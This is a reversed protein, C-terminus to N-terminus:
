KSELKIITEAREVIIDLADQVSLSSDESQIIKVTQALALSLEGTQNATQVDEIAKYAGNLRGSSADTINQTTIFPSLSTGLTILMNMESPSFGGHAFANSGLTLSLLLLATKM